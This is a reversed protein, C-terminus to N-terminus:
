TMHTIDITLINNTLKLKIFKFFIVILLKHLRTYNDNVFFFFFIEIDNMIRTKHADINIIIKNTFNLQRDNSIHQNYENLKSSCLKVIIFQSEVIIEFQKIKKRLKKLIKRDRNKDFVNLKEFTFKVHRLWFVEIRLKERWRRKMENKDCRIWNVNKKRQTKRM